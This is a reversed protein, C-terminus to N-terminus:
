KKPVRSRSRKVLSVALQHPLRNDFEMLGGIEPAQDGVGRRIKEDLWIRGAKAFAFRTDNMEKVGALFSRAPPAAHVDTAIFELHSSVLLPLAGVSVRL